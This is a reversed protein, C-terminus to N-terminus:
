PIRHSYLKFTLMISSHSKLTSNKAFWSGCLGSNHMHQRFIFYIHIYTYVYLLNYCTIIFVGLKVNDQARVRLSSVLARAAQEEEVKINRM